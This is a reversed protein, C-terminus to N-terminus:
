RRKGSLCPVRDEKVPEASIVTSPGVRTRLWAIVEDADREAPFPTEVMCSGDPSTEMVAFAHPGTHIAVWRGGIVVLDVQNIARDPPAHRAQARPM